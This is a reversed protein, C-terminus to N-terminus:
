PETGLENMGSATAGSPETREDVIRDRVAFQDGHERLTIRTSSGPRGTRHSRRVDV